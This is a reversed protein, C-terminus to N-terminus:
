RYKRELKTMARELDNPKKFPDSLGNRWKYLTVKHVGATDCVMKMPVRLKAARREIEKLHKKIEM